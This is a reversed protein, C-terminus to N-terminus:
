VAKRCYSCRGVEGRAGCNQCTRPTPAPMDDLDDDEPGYIYMLAGPRLPSPYQEALADRRSLAAQDGAKVPQPALALKIPDTALKLPDGM